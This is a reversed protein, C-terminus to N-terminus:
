GKGSTGDPVPEAQRKSRLNRQIKDALEEPVHRDNFTGVVITELNRLGVLPSLDTIGSSHRIDLVRLDAAHRLTELSVPAQVRQLSLYELGPLEGINGLDTLSPGSLNVKPHLLRAGDPFRGGSFKSPRDLKVGDLTELRSVDVGHDLGVLTGIHRLDPAHFSTNIVQLHDIRRCEPVEADGHHCALKGFSEYGVLRVRGRVELDVLSPMKSKTLPEENFLRGRISRLATYVADPDFQIQVGDLVELVDLGPLPGPLVSGRLRIHTLSPFRRLPGLDLGKDAASLHLDLHTLSPFRELGDLWLEPLPKSPRVRSAGLALSRVRHRLPLESAAVLHTLALDLWADQDEVQDFVPGRRITPYRRHAARKKAMRLPPKVGETLAAMVAEDDLAAALEVGQRISARDPQTLLSAIADVQQRQRDGLEVNDDLTPFM